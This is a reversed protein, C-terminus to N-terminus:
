KVRKWTVIHLGEEHFSKPYEHGGLRAATLLKDGELRYILKRTRGEGAGRTTTTEDFTPPTRSTDTTYVGETSLKDRQRFTWKGGRNIQVWPGSPLGWQEGDRCVSIVEWTGEVGVAETAGDDEKPSDSGLLPLVLLAALLCVTRRM